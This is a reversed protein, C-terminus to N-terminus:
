ALVRGDPSASAARRCIDLASPSHPAPLSPQAGARRATARVGSATGALVPPRQGRVNPPRSGRSNRTLPPRGAPWRSRPTAAPRRHRTTGGLPLRSVPGTLPPTL